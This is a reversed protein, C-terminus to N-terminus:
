IFNELTLHNKNPNKKAPLKRKKKETKVEPTRTCGNASPQNPLSKDVTESQLDDKEVKSFNWLPAVLHELPIDRALANWAM